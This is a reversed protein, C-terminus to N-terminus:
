VSKERVYLTRPNTRRFKSLMLCAKSRFHSRFHFSIGSDPPLFNRFNGKDRDGCRAAPHSRPGARNKEWDSLFASSFTLSPFIDRFHSRSPFSILSSLRVDPYPPNLQSQSSQTRPEEARIGDRKHRVQNRSFRIPPFLLPHSFRNLIRGLPKDSELKKSTKVGDYRM